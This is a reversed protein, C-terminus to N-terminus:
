QVMQGLIFVNNPRSNPIFPINVTVTIVTGMFLINLISRSTSHENDGVGGTPSAPSVADLLEMRRKTHIHTHTVVKSNVHYCFFVPAILELNKTLVRTEPCNPLM